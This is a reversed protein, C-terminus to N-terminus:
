CHRVPSGAQGPRYCSRAVAVEPEGAVGGWGRVVVAAVAVAGVVAGAGAVVNCVEAHDPARSSGPIGLYPGSLTISQLPTVNINALYPCSQVTGALVSTVAGAAAALLVSLNAAESVETM